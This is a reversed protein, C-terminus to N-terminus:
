ESWAINGEYFLICEMNRVLAPDLFDDKLIAGVATTLKVSLMWTSAFQEPSLDQIPVDASNNKDLAFEIPVPKPKSLPNGVTLTLFSGAASLDINKSLDMKFSVKKLKVNTLHTPIIGSSLSFELSQKTSDTQVSLLSHWAGPFTQKINRYYAGTSPNLANQVANTFPGPGADLATYSLHIIVDSLRSFDFRNTAKPLSLEWTSVAGTGEFPLYREDRFNLEFLGSDNMGRSLAIKQNHRWSNRLLSADPQTAGQVGLLYSVGNTNAQVLVKDSLQTLTANINQYPGVVAPISLSITKIQRCYHGPFDSDFLQESM